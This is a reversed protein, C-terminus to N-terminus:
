YTGFSGSNNCIVSELLNKCCGNRLGIVPILVFALTFRVCYKPYFFRMWFCLTAVIKM